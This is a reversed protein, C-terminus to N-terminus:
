VVEEKMFKQYVDDSITETKSDVIKNDPHESLFQVKFPYVVNIGTYFVNTLYYVCEVEKYLEYKGKPMFFQTCPASYEFDNANKSMLHTRRDVYNDYRFYMKTLNNPGVKNTSIRNGVYGEFRPDILDYAKKMYGHDDKIFVYANRFSLSTQNFPRMYINDVPVRFYYDELILSPLNYIEVRIEENSLLGDIYKVCWMIRLEQSTLIMEGPKSLTFEIRNEEKYNHLEYCCLAFTARSKMKSFDLVLDIDFSMYHKRLPFFEERLMYSEGEATVMQFYLIVSEYTKLSVNVRTKYTDGKYDDLNIYFNGFKSFPYEEVKYDKVVKFEPLSRSFNYRPIIAKDAADLAAYDISKNIKNPASNKTGVSFLAAGITVLKIFKFM